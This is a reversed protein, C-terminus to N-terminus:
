LKSALLAAQHTNSTHLFYTANETRSVHQLKILAVSFQTPNVLVMYIRNMYPTKPLFIVIYVTM